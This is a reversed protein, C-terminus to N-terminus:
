HHEHALQPRGEVERGPVEVEVEGGETKMVTRQCILPTTPFGAVIPHTIAFISIRQLLPNRDSQFRNDGAFAREEM